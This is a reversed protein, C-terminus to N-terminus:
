SHKQWKSLGEKFFLGIILLGALISLTDALFRMPTESFIAEVTHQGEGVAFEMFGKTNSYDIVTPSGDVLVEWGPFYITNLRLKTSDTKSTFTISKSMTSVQDITGLGEVFEMREKAREKPKEKVWLPMLEDASTTTAENTFYYDDPLHSVSQPKAYPLTVVIAVFMLFFAIIQTQRRFALLGLPAALFFVGSSLVRWPFDVDSFLPTYQWFPLSFPLSLFVLIALSVISFLSFTFAVAREKQKWLAFIAVVMALVHVWGLQVSMSDEQGFAGYGWSPLLLESPSVFYEDIRTLKVQSLAILGKELLAPILFFSALLGGLIFGAFLKRTLVLREGKQQLVLMLSFALLFPSFLLATVNHTTLLIGAFLALLAVNRLSGEKAIKLVAWFLLPFLVFSLSEGISGRVYLNVLRYPVYLYFISSILGGRNGFLERGLLFMALGSLVVSAAFVVKISSVLGFGVLHVAEAFYYPFPYTFHFLPYGFGFNLNNSWRVPFQHELLARHMAGLRVVAWEGDHTSFFGPQFFPWILPVALIVLLGLLVIYKKM